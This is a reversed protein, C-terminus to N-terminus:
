DVALIAKLGSLTACYGNSLAFMAMNLLKFWDSWFLWSPGIEFATLLFTITAIFRLASLIKVTKGSAMLAPVGALKRGITDFFNFTFGLLLCNWSFYQNRGILFNFGTNYALSPFVIFTM